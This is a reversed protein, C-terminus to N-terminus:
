DHTDTIEVISVHTIKSWVYGNAHQPREAEAIVPVFVLRYPHDLDATIQGARDHKLEHFRGPVHRLEELNMAASLVSLRKQLRTARDAGFARVRSRQTECAAGLKKDQFELKM